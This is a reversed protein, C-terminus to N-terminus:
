KICARRLPLNYCHFMGTDYWVHDHGGGIAYIEGNLQAVATYSRIFNMPQLPKLVNHSPYYSDFASLWSEGDYGGLLFISEKPDLALEDFSKVVKEDDLVMSTNAEPEM